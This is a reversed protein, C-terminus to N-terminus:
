HTLRTPIPSIRPRSLSRRHRERLERLHKEAETEDREERVPPTGGPILTASALEIGFGIVPNIAVDVADLADDNRTRPYTVWQDLFPQLPPLVQLEGTEGDTYSAVLISGNIFNKAMQRIRIEKPINKTLVGNLSVELESELHNKFHYQNSGVEVSIIRPSWKIISSKIENFITKIDGRTYLLDLLYGISDKDFGVTALALFDSTTSERGGHEDIGQYITLEEKPPINRTHVLQLYSRFLM